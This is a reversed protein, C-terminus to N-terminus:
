FALRQDINLPSEIPLTGRAAPNVVEDSTRPLRASLHVPQDDGCAVEAGGSAVICGTGVSDRDDEHVSLLQDQEHYFVPDTDHATGM